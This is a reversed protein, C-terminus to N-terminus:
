RIPRVDAYAPHSAFFEAEAARAAAMSRHMNLDHQSRNVVGLHGLRLPVVENRLVAAADTGRDMIDLKTLVGAASEPPSKCLVATESEIREGRLRFDSRAAKSARRRPTQQLLSM